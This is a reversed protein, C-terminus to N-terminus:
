YCLRTGAHVRGSPEEGAEGQEGIRDTANWEELIILLEEDSFCVDTAFRHMVEFREPEKDFVIFSPKGIGVSYGLELHGSKGAPMLLVVADVRNLHHKDFEFIHNVVYGNLFEKYTRGRCKEYKQLYDDSEPGTGFWDEFVEYGANRLKNGLLPINPNRLSGIIYVSKIM